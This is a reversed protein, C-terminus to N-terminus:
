YMRIILKETRVSKKIIRRLIYSVGQIESWVSDTHTIEKLICGCNLITEVKSWFHISYINPYAICHRYIYLVESIIFYFNFRLEWKISCVMYRLNLNEIHLTCLRIDNTQITYLTYLTYMICAHAGECEIM